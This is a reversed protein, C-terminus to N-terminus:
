QATRSWERLAIGLLRVASILTACVVLTIVWVAVWVFGRISRKKISEFVTEDGDISPLTVPFYAAIALACVSCLFVAASLLADHTRDTLIVIATFSLLSALLLFWFIKRFRNLYLGLRNYFRLM